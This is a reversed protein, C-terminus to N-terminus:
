LYGLRKMMKKHHKIISQIQEENLEKHYQNSKGQRFFNKTNIPKERFGKENEAKKLKKFSSLRIAKKIATDSCDIGIAKMVHSFSKFPDDITDEYRM